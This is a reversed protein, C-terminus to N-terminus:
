FADLSRFLEGDLAVVEDIPIETGGCLVILREFEKLKRVRGTVQVYAGGAKKTDPQFYTIIVEPRERIHEKIIQLKEDLVAKGSEDLEVPEETLRATERLAAEHGSLAAFPSFQAARDYLPMHPRAASVHHPLSIIDDYRHEDSKTDASKGTGSM